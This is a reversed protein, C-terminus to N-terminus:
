LSHVGEVAYLRNMAHGSAGARRGAAFGRAHRIMEPDTLLPDADLALVVAARDLRLMLDLDRGTASRLGALRNEDSVAEYTAWQLRPYRERLEAALRALTPSSFSESLVALSAGDDSAHAESLQGWATVFDSWSKRAGKHTVSQSRDPDYLGLVSAQVLSSSAGLTSPHSPNGEIKTPRGEHSEVILGCPGRRLPM